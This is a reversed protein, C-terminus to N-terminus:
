QTTTNAVKENYTSIAEKVDSISVEEKLSSFVDPFWKKLSKLDEKIILDSERNIRIITYPGGNKSLYFTKERIVNGSNGNAGGM